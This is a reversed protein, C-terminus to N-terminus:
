KAKREREIRYVLWSVWVAVGYALNGKVIADAGMGIALGGMASERVFRVFTPANRGLWHAVTEPLERPETTPPYEPM